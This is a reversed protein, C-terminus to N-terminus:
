WIILKKVDTFDGAQIRYFYIGKSLSGATISVTHKGAEKSANVLVKVMRGNVDFLTLNVKEARWLTFPINTENEFPNPYNQGLSHVNAVPIQIQLSPLRLM